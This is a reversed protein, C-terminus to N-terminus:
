EDRSYIAKEDVINGVICGLSAIEIRIEMPLQDFFCFFERTELNLNMSILSKQSEEKFAHTLLKNSVKFFNCTMPFESLLDIIFM